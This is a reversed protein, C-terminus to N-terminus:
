GEGKVDCVCKGGFIVVEDHAGVVVGAGAVLGFAFLTGVEERAAAMVCAGGADPLSHPEFGYGFRANIRNANYGVEVATAKDECGREFIGM